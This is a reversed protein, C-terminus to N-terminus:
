KKKADKKEAMEAETEFITCVVYRYDDVHFVVVEDPAIINCKIQSLPALVRLFEAIYRPDIKLTMPDGEYVIPMEIQSDGVNAAKSKLSLNGKEFCFEVGASEENRVLMSQQVAASFPHLVLDVSAVPPEKPISKLVDPYKGSLTGTIITIGDSYYAVYNGASFIQIPEKDDLFCKEVLSMAKSPVSPPVDPKIPIGISSYPCLMIGIRRRDTASMLIKGDDMFRHNVGELCPLKADVISVAFLTKQICSRFAVPAVCYVDTMKLSGFLQSMPFDVAEKDSLNFESGGSKICVKRETVTINVVDSVLSKLIPLIRDMAILIDCDGNSVAEKVKYKLAMVSDSGILTMGGERCQIYVCKLDDITTRSPIVGAIATMGLLLPKKQCVIKM